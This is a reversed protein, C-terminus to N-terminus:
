DQPLWRWPSWRAVTRLNMRLDQGYKQRIHDSSFSYGLSVIDPEIGLSNLSKVIELVLSLRGGLIFYPQCIAVRLNNM